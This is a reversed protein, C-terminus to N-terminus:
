STVVRQRSGRSENFEVDACSNVTIDNPTYTALPSTFMLTMKYASEKVIYLSAM